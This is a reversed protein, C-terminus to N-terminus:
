REESLSRSWTAKRADPEARAPLGARDLRDGRAVVGLQVAERQGVVAGRGRQEPVDGAAGLQLEQIEGSRAVGVASGASTDPPPSNEFSPLNIVRVADLAEAGPSTQHELTGRAPEISIVRLGCGPTSRPTRTRGSSTTKGRM